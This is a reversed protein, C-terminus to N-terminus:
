FCGFPEYLQKGIRLLLRLSFLREIRKAYCLIVVEYYEEILRRTYISFKYLTSLFTSRKKKYRHAKNFDFIKVLRM